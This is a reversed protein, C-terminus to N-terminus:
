KKAAEFAQSQQWQSYPHRDVIVNAFFSKVSGPLKGGWKAHDHYGKPNGFYEAYCNAFFENHSMASYSENTGKIAEMAGAGVRFPQHYYHNLFYRSGGIPQYKKYHAYWSEPSHQVVGQLAAPMQQWAAIDEDTQGATPSVRSPGWAGSGVWSDLMSRMRIRTAEDMTPPFGGATAILEEMTMPFFGMENQLWQNVEANMQSHVAHGVEHLVTHTLFQNDTDKGIVVEGDYFGGGGQMAQFASIMTNLTVDSPPLKELTRWLCRVSGPTWNASTYYSPNVPEIQDLRHVFRIEFLRDLDAMDTIRADEVLFMLAKRAPWGLQGTPLSALVGEWLGLMKLMQMGERPWRNNLEVLMQQGNGTAAIAQLEEPHWHDKGKKRGKIRKQVKAKREKERKLWAKDRRSDEKWSIDAQEGGEASDVDNLREEDVDPIPGAAATQPQQGALHEHEERDPIGDHDADRDRHHHVSRDM